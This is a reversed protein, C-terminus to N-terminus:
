LIPAEFSEGDWNEACLINGRREVYVWEECHTDPEDYYAIWENPGTQGVRKIKLSGCLAMGEPGDEPHGWRNRAAYQAILKIQEELSMPRDNQSKM